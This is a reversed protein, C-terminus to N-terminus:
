PSTISKSFELLRQRVVQNYDSETRYVHTQCLYDMGLYAASMKFADYFSEPKDDANSVSIVAMKKNRLQRGLDKHPEHLLDSIRDLFVKMHGSMSYWYVPSAFIWTNYTEILDRILSLFGDDVNQHNYDYHGISYSKLQILDAAIHHTLEDSFFSTDGDTRSSGQIIVTQTQM